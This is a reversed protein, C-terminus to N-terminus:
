PAGGGRVGAGHEHGPGALGAMRASSSYQHPVTNTLSLSFSCLEPSATVSSSNAGISPIAVGEDIVELGQDGFRM